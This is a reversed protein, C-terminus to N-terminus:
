DHGLQIRRYLRARVARAEGRAFLDDQRAQRAARERERAADFKAEASAIMQNLLWSSPVFLPAPKTM